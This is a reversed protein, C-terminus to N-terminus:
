PVVVGMFALAAYAVMGAGAVVLVALEVGRRSTLTSAAIVLPFAGLAYREFSDLNSSALSVVLVAAAFCAYSFPLRRFAVVLLVLCVLVWPVHLASGLHHGHVVSEVNHWMSALPIAVVGRHGKQQQVRFPLWLDGFQARVWGLYVATGAVPGLVAAAQGAATTTRITGTTAPISTSTASTSTAAGSTQSPAARAAKEKRVPAVRGIVAGSARARWASWIEIAVPVVLLIGVPRVLGAVLGAAAAWWWRGSRAALLTVVSCLLLAADAYGLVLSYASPALALLWVSRRALRGDGMDHDVLIVLAAMAALACLNAIIVLAAGVGLGPIHGLVRAAMPFAPFFRVSQVSSAVYGHAAISQYWGGDWALLGQHVRLAAGANGPRVRSVLLHAAVLSVAVLIRSLIWAPLAVL